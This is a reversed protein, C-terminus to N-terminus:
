ESEDKEEADTLEQAIRTVDDIDYRVNKKTTIIRATACAKILAESVQLEGPSDGNKIFAQLKEQHKFIDGFHMLRWSIAMRQEESLEPERLEESLEPERLEKMVALMGRNIPIDSFAYTKDGDTFLPKAAPNEVPMSLSAAAHYIGQCWLFLDPDVPDASFKALETLSKKM